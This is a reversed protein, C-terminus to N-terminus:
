SESEVDQIHIIAGAKPFNEVQKKRLFLKVSFCDASLNVEKELINSPLASKDIFVSWREFIAPVGLRVEDPCHQAKIVNGGSSKL